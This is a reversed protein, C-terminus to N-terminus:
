LPRGKQLATTGCVLSMTPVPLCTIKLLATQGMTFPCRGSPNWQRVSTATVATVGAESSATPTMLVEPSTMASSRSSTTHQSTAALHQPQQTQSSPCARVWTRHDGSVVLSFRQVTGQRWSGLDTLRFLPNALQAAWRHRYLVLMCAYPSCRWKRGTQLWSDSTSSTVCSQLEPM